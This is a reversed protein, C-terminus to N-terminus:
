GLFEVSLMKGMVVAERGALCNMTLDRGMFRIVGSETRLSISDEGYQAIGRCGEIIAQRDGRLEIRVEKSLTGGPLELAQEVRRIREGGKM